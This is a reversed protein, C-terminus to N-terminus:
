ALGKRRALEEVSELYCIWYTEGTDPAGAAQSRRLAAGLAEAHEPWTFAGEAVLRHALAFIRAQWPAEFPQGSDAPLPATGPDVPAGTM